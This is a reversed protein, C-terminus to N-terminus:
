SNQVAGQASRLPWYWLGGNQNWPSFSLTLSVCHGLQDLHPCSFKPPPLHVVRGRRSWGEIRDDLLSQYGERMYSIGLIPFCLTNFIYCSSSWYEHLPPMTKSLFAMLYIFDLIDFRYSQPAERM